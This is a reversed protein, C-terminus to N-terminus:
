AISLDHLIDDFTHVVMSDKSKTHKKKIQEEAM